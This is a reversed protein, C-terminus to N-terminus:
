PRSRGLESLYRVLDRFEARTLTEALGAPMVSGTQRRERITDRRLRVERNQLVDRLVIEESSERVLYGQYDEGDKAAISTSIYGEKIEKQPDLIAGVIFEIPQASGLTSLNPGIIGGEGNVAHCALCGLEARRFIEAGRGADGQTRVEGAFAATEEPSMPTNAKQLGAANALVAALQEDRRGSASLIALGAEAAPKPPPKASLASALAAAGRQRQLFASFVEALEANIREPQGRVGSLPSPSSAGAQEFWEAAKPAAATVDFGALAAIAASQVSAAPEGALRSLAQQSADGGLSALADIAARRNQLETRADFALTEATARFSELKWVGALKLAESRLRVDTSEILPRLAATLDGLPRLKRVRSATALAPLLRSQLAADSLKLIAALDESTGADVLITLFTERSAADLRSSRLLERVTQVTDATADARVLFSLRDPKNELSLQGTKFAPLWHPKLAFVAQNLAYNLFKDMPFDAAVAAVEMAEPKPVYSCAVVAQLRVRPHEDAVLPRLLALPDPLRDAWAGVVGAAYARAGAEKARCLRALLGPEVAEHSQYVGLAETLAHETLGPQATWKRLAAVAQDEPRDALVRKAFHRTWRDPSKLHELLQSIPADALQPPQALPRGKATVRWIRGHTKDRNPDRFSAQYHGIVPNYWDCLYLAGEPGFKVDVPRFSRSTSRILPPLDELLFGAGDDSIKLTWVANNIYGGVILAGQWADPFHATGVIDGGSVKRGNGNKWILAPADDRHNLVLGPVPYIPSSNNGALVLPEGWDTFVFGWPNQPEHESGYFGELKLRRPWLRWLGAQHLRAIGWPTEVRSFIHLGQSMWLEGGPGWRFSNINQHNDGTGFGRLLVRREDAKGDGDTDKFFLLETGHGLYVGGDGLEIGTPIMLGDAFVTTKDCRGDRDTDELILIKDNPIQGPEIQPYVTSGIVWLRGRADFRMQIPKVVGDKESAFLNVEFGDAIQFSALEASPDDSEAAFSRFLPPTFSLVAVLACVTEVSKILRNLHPACAGRTGIAAGRRLGSGVTQRMGRRARIGLGDALRRRLCALARTSGLRSAKLGSIRRSM